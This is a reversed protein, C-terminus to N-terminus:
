FTLQYFLNTLILVYFMLDSKNYNLDYLNILNKIYDDNLNKNKFKDKLISNNSM